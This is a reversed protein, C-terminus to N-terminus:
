LAAGVSTLTLICFTIRMEWIPETQNVGVSTYNVGTGPYCDSDFLSLLFLSYFTNEKAKGRAQFSM